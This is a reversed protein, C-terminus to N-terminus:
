RGESNLLGLFKRIQATNPTSILLDLEGTDVGPTHGRGLAMSRRSANHGSRLVSRSPRRESPSAHPLLLGSSSSPAFSASSPSRPALSAHRIVLAPPTNCGTDPSHELAATSEATSESGGPGPGVLSLVRRRRWHVAPRPPPVITTSGAQGASDQPSASPPRLSNSRPSGYQLPEPAPTMGKISISQAQFRRQPTAPRTPPTPSRPRRRRRAPSPSTPTPSRRLPDIDRGLSPVPMRRTARAPETVPPLAIRVQSPGPPTAAGAPPEPDTHSAGPTLPEAGPSGDPAEPGPGKPQGGDSAVGTAEDPALARSPRRRRTGSGAGPPAVFRRTLLEPLAQPARPLALAGADPKTTAVTSPARPAPGAAPPKPRRVPLPRRPSEAPRQGEEEAIMMLKRSVAASHPARMNVEAWGDRGERAVAWRRHRPSFQLRYRTLPMPRGPFPFTCAPEGHRGYFTLSLVPSTITEPVHVQLAPPPPDHCHAQSTTSLSQKLLQQDM